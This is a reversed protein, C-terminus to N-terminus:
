KRMKDLFAQYPTRLKGNTLSRHPRKYNYHEVAKEFSRTKDWLKKITDVLKEMKGNSQPHKVRAFIQKIGAERVVKEFDAEGRRKGEQENARFVSGNDSHFQKPVGWELSRKFVKIGNESTAHKFRGSGTVFRSADDEILIFKWEKHEAWDSHVLSLSHKREYRCYKRRKQKKEEHKAFGQELMIKHIRNHNIHIGKEDLIEELMTAGVFYEKYTNTVLQREQETIERSKRGPKLIVPNKCDRYSRYVRRAHRPTIKQLKSITWAGVVRKEMEKVIWKIKKKNLKRMFEQQKAPSISNVSLVNNRSVVIGAPMPLM